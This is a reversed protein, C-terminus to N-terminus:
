QYSFTITSLASMVGPKITEATKIYRAEFPVSIVSGSAESKAVLWQNKNGKASSDPGFNLPSNTGQKMIQIGLGTATSNKALSLINGTNAPNTADTLTAYVSVGADCKLGLSFPASKAASVDGVAKLSYTVLQPMVVTNTAGSTITCAKATVTISLAGIGLPLRNSVVTGNLMAGLTSTTQAPVRYNGTPVSGTAVLTVQQNYGWGYSGSPGAPFVTPEAGISVWSTNLNKTELAYGIGPIGTEFVAAPGTQGRYTVGPVVRGLPTVVIADIQCGAGAIGAVYASGATSSPFQIGPALSDRVHSITAPLAPSPNSSPTTTCGSFASESLFVVGLILASSTIKFLM